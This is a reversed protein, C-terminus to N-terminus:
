YHIDVKTGIDAWSYILQAAETSLIVCGYSARQGLLGGWMVTGDPRIPLAHIGNEINGVYYIGLWYPMTLSWVSSYASPIKDLVEYHGPATDRGPLGTSTPFEYLLTDGEYAYFRQTSINIEIRKPPFLVYMVQDLHVRAEEDGPRLALAAELDAKAGEFEQQGQRAIGRQRYAFSLLDTVQAQDPLQDHAQTLVAIAASWNEGDAAAHGLMLYAEALPAPLDAYGPMQEYAATYAAIAAEWDGAQFASRGQGYAQTTRQWLRAEADDLGWAVAQDFQAQAQDVQGAEVLAQGYWLHTRLAWQHLEQSGPDVSGMIDIIELARDWNGEALAVQLQPVFRAAIEGPTLTPTPSPTPGPTAMLWALSQDVPGWVLLAALGLAALLVLTVLIWRWTRRGRRAPPAAPQGPPEQLRALAAQAERNGPDLALVRRLLVEREQRSTALAALGVWADVCDPEVEVAARLLRRAEDRDGQRALTQSAEVWVQAQIEGANGNRFRQLDLKTSSM